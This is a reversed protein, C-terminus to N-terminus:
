FFYFSTHPSLNKYLLRWGQQTKLSKIKLNKYSKRSYILLYQYSAKCIHLIHLDKNCVMCNGFNQIEELFKKELEM